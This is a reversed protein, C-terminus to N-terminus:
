WLRHLEGKVTRRLSFLSIVEVEIISYFNKLKKLLSTLAFLKKLVTLHPKYPHLHDKLRRSNMERMM